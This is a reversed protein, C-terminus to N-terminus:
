VAICAAPQDAAARASDNQGPGPAVKAVLCPAPALRLALLYAVEPAPHPEEAVRFRVVLSDPAFPEGAPGRWEATSGFSNFAGGSVRSLDIRTEKGGPAVVALTQRADSDAIRLAWGAPGACLVEAYPMEEREERVLKCGTLPTYRYARGTVPSPTPEPAPAASQAAPAATGDAAPRSDTEEAQSCAAALLVLASLVLARTM